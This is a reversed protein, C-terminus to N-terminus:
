ATQEQWLEGIRAWEYIPAWESSWAYAAKNFSSITPLLRIGALLEGRREYAQPNKRSLGLLASGLKDADFTKIRLKADLGCESLLGYMIDASETHETNQTARDTMLVVMLLNTMLNLEAQSLGPLFILVAENSHGAFGCHFVNHCFPCLTVLNDLHHNTHNDDKHHVTLYKSFELSYGPATTKEDPKVSFGCGQCTYRDRRLAAPRNKQYDPDIDIDRGSHARFSERKVSPILLM